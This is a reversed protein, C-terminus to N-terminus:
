IRRTMRTRLRPPADRAATLPLELVFTDDQLSPDPQGSFGATISTERRRGASGYMAPRNDVARILSSTTSETQHRLKFCWLLLQEDIRMSEGLLIGYKSVLTVLAEKLARINKEADPRSLSRAYLRADRKWAVFKGRRTEMAETMKDVTSRLPAQDVAGRRVGGTAPRFGPGTDAPAVNADPEYTRGSFSRSGASEAVSDDDDNENDYETRPGTGENLVVDVSDGDSTVDGEEEEDEEGGGGGTFNTAQTTEEAADLVGQVYDETIQGTESNRRATPIFKVAVTESFSIKRARKRAPESEFTDTGNEDHGLKRKRSGLEVRYMATTNKGEQRGSKKPSLFFLSFSLRPFSLSPPPPTNYNKPTRTYTIAM